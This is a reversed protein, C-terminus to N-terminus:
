KSGFIEIIKCDIKRISISRGGGFTNKTRPMNQVIWLSDGELFVNFSDELDFTDGFKASWKIKALDIAALANKICSESNINSNKKNSNCYSNCLLICIVLFLKM